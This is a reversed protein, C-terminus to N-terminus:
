GSARRGRAARRSHETAGQVSGQAGPEHRQHHGAMPEFCVFDNTGGAAHGKPAYIVAARYHPGLVSRDTARKGAVTMVARGSADRVLDGFVHDLDYDRLPLANPDPFLQEIPRTEGTPVKNAALVWQPAHASRCADVRRTPSDTLQFYPHFGIAVPM